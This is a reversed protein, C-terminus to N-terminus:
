YLFNYIKKIFINIHQICIDILKLRINKSYLLLCIIDFCLYFSSALIYTFYIVFYEFNREIKRM